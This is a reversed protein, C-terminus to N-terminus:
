IQFLLAQIPVWLFPIFIKHPFVTLIAHPGNKNKKVRRQLQYIREGGKFLLNIFKIKVHFACCPSLEVTFITGKSQNTTRQYFQGIQRYYRTKTGSLTHLNHHQRGHPISIFYPSVFTYTKPTLIYFSLTKTGMMWWDCPAPARAQMEM